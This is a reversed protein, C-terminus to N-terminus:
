DSEVHSAAMVDAGLNTACTVANWGWDGPLAKSEGTLLNVEYLSMSHLVMATDPGALFATQAGGWTGSNIKTHSGDKLNVKYTGLSHFVVAGTPHYVAGHAEVWGQTPGTLNKYKGDKADVQFIGDSHFVYHLDTEPDYVVEKAQSWGAAIGFFGGGLKEYSGDAIKVRYMGHSHLCLVHEPDRKSRLLCKALEWSGSIGTLQTSEHTRVNKKWLGLSHFLLIEEDNIPIAVQAEWHGDGPMKYYKGEATFAYLGNPHFAVAVAPEDM